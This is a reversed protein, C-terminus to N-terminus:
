LGRDLLGPLPHDLVVGQCALYGGLVAEWAPGAPATRSALFHVNRQTNLLEGLRSLIRCKKPWFEALVSQALIRYRWFCGWFITIQMVSAGSFSGKKSGGPLGLIRGGAPPARPRPFKRMKPRPPFDRNKAM